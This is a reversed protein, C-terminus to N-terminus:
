RHPPRPSGRRQAGRPAPGARGHAHAGALCPDTPDSLSCLYPSPIPLISPVQLPLPLGAGLSAPVVGGVVKTPDAEQVEVIRGLRERKPLLPNSAPAEEPEDKLAEILAQDKADKAAQRFAKEAAKVDVKVIYAGKNNTKM